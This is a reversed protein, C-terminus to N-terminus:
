RIKLIAGAREVDLVYGFHEATQRLPLGFVRRQAGGDGGNALLARVVPVRLRLGAKELTVAHPHWSMSMGLYDRFFQGDVYVVGDRQFMMGRYSFTERGRRGEQNEVRQLFHPNAVLQQYHALMQPQATVAYNNIRRHAPANLLNNVDFYFIAKVRPYHHQLGGYMRSLKNKAYEVRVKGDTSSFHSVGFESVQIPKRVSFMRYTYDLLKLPDEHDAPQQLDDNHFAVNYVNVGVWDVYEDGPYYDAITREPTPFVTWVMAVKPAHARLLRQVLRWKEKYLDPVGSYATWNGNMESAFRLFIPVDAEGAARVFARLYADDRVSHLGDNPEWAIHPVAGSAKVREVWDAPFPKGYGVYKFFSAHAKGTIRNFRQPDAYLWTAQEIYAGLYAGTRPELKQYVYDRELLITTDMPICEVIKIKGSQSKVFQSKVQNGKQHHPNKMQLFLVICAISLLGIGIIWARLSNSRNVM